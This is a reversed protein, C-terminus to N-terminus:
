FNGLKCRLPASKPNQEVLMM